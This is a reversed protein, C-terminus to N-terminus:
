ARITKGNASAVLREIQEETFGGLKRAIPAVPNSRPAYFDGGGLSESASDFVKESTGKQKMVLGLIAQGRDLLADVGPTDDAELWRLLCQVEEATASPLPGPGPVVTEATAILADVYPAPHAGRPVIGAAVLRGRRIVSIDWGRQPTPRAAVLEAVSTLAQLRQLRVLARLLSALRDRQVAADEYREDGALVRIRATLARVLPSPDGAVARRFAQAHEAYDDQSEEHQCPAGCRRMQALVCAPSRTRTSLRKTCQRLPLAEHLAAMALEGNRASGFPGLYTADDDLVKRV